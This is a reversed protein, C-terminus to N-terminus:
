HDGSAGKRASDYENRGNQRSHRRRMDRGPFGDQEFFAKRLRYGFPHGALTHGTQHDHEQAVACPDPHPGEAHGIRLRTARHRRVRQKADFRDGLGDGGPARHSEGLSPSEVEVRGQGFAQGVPLRGAAQRWDRRALKQGVAGTNAEAIICRAIGRTRRSRPEGLMEGLVKRDDPRGAIAEGVGVGTEVQEFEHDFGAGALIEPRQHGALHECRQPHIAGAEVPGPGVHRHAVIEPAPRDKGVDIRAASRTPQM